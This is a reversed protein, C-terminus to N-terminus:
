EEFVLFIQYRIMALIPPKELSNYERLWKEIFLISDAVGPVIKAGLPPAIAISLIWIPQLVFKISYFLTKNNLHLLPFHPSVVM